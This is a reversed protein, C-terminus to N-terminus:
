KILDHLHIVGAIDSRKGAGKRKGKPGSVFLATISHEEMLRLAAEALSDGAIVKPNKAMVDSVKKEFLNPWRELARRLDGDTIVGVLRKGKFVGTLGLRKDTIEFIADKTKADPRVSPVAAGRHMLESVKMFKKGLSGAPHLTAFDEEKFGRRELLAVSLADGLAPSATTSATPSLGLPCAEKKVSVDIVVDAYKSLTSNKRGTMVILKIGLRKVAPLIKTIEETEGSNSLAILIDNKTLMGVDGHVADGPHLFFAPTGTGALTSAIKQCVIGSKGMGTLVVKGPTKLMLDVAKGFNNDLRKKLGRVADAEITLVRKATSIAPDKKM